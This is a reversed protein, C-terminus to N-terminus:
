AVGQGPVPIRPGTKGAGVREGPVEIRLAQRGLRREEILRRREALEDAEKDSLVTPGPALQPRTEDAEPTDFGLKRRM